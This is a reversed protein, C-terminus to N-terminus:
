SQLIKIGVLPEKGILEKLYNKADKASLDNIKELVKKYTKERYHTALHTQVHNSIETQKLWWDYVNSGFRKEIEQRVDNLNVENKLLYNYDGAVVDIFANVVEKENFLVAFSDKSEKLINIANEICTPDQAYRNNIINFVNVFRSPDIKPLWLIPVGHKESWEKPSRTHSIKYWLDILDQMLHNLKLKNLHSNILQKFHDTSNNIASKPLETYIELVEENPLNVDVQVQNKLFKTLIDVMSDLIDRIREGHEALRAALDGKNIDGDSYAFTILLEFTDKVDEAYNKIVAWPVRVKDLMEKLKANAIELNTCKYNLFDNLADLLRYEHGISELVDNVQEEEWLWHADESMRNRIDDLIQNFAIGSNDAISLVEPITQKLYEKMGAKFKETDITETLDSLVNMNKLLNAVEEVLQLESSEEKTSVFQCVLSIIEQLKSLNNSYKTKKTLVYYKLAWLPYRKESLFVRVSRKVDRPCSAQEKTLHFMKQMSNCFYEHEPKMRVISYNQFNRTQKMVSEIVDALGEFSLPVANVGDDRYFGGNDAYEKMLFGFLFAAVPSPAMGHEHMLADWIESVFVTNNGKILKEVTQKMKSLAHDPTLKLLSNDQWFGKDELATVIKRYSGTAKKVGMGMLAADKSYGSLKYLNVNTTINEPRFPFVKANVKELYENLGNLKSFNYSEGRFYATMTAIEVKDIWKDIMKEANEMYYRAHSGDNMERAYGERTKAELWSEWQRESFAENVNVFITRTNDSMNEKIVDDVKALEAESKVIIFVLLINYPELENVMRILRVKLNHLPTTKVIFRISAPGTLSFVNLFKEGIAGSEVCREFTNKNEIQKRITALKNKDYSMMPVIFERDNTGSHNFNLLEKKVLGDLIRGLKDYIPTGTFMLALNSQLPKLLKEAGLQRNMAILLLTCKFVRKEDETLEGLHSNYYNILRQVEEPLDNNDLKFFYDWMLDPTLWCWDETSHNKIFWNFNQKRTEEQGAEDEKLFQFMTRQNSSLQQSLISLLYASFPHLPVLRQLDELKLGESHQKLINACREVKDWLSILKAEWESEAEPKIRIANAMLQYATVDSMQFQIMEFRDQLVKRADSDLNSFQEIARHTILFLYFPMRTSAHALEQLTSVARNQRFYDTFEDWIFVIAKLNNGKIVDELWDKVEDVSSIYNFGEEEMVRAVTEVLKYNEATQLAHIVQETSSYEGFDLSHKKFVVDFRFPSNDETLKKLITEYATTGGLYTYGANELAKRVSQQVEVLLRRSTTIDSSSSRHVVLIKGNERLSKFRNFLPQILKFSSFYEEVSNLEDELMHKVVFSAMTKGTGYSGSMWIPRCSAKSEREISKIVHNVVEKISQHPVFSKWASPAKKDAEDNFVPIFDQNVDIYDKYLPM